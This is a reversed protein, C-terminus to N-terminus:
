AAVAEPILAESWWCPHVLMHTQRDYPFGAAGAEFVPCWRGGSDSLCLARSLWNPDYDFGFTSRPVPALKLRGALVRDPEGWAPRASETFIEDNVFHHQYCARDGHAVVGRVPYGYSRLESVGAAILNLPDAGTDLAQTIANVHFGIEHGCGAITELAARLEHKHQWYPATHLIFYTARYGREAERQAMAVAPALVNDVEHRLGITNVDTLGDAVECMPVVATAQEYLAELERLDNARFPSQRRV